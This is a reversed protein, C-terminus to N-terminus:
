VMLIRCLRVLFFQNNFRQFCLQVDKPQQHRKNRSQAHSTDHDRDARVAPQMSHFPHRIWVVISGPIHLEQKLPGHRSQPRVAVSVTLVNKM